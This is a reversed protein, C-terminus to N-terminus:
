RGRRGRAGRGGGHGGGGAGAREVFPPLETSGGAADFRLLDVAVDVSGRTHHAMTAPLPFRLEAVVAVGARAGAAVKSLHARTTSKHLSFVAGGPRVLALAARVFAVDAGARRTGFPPNCLVTDFRGVGAHRPPSPPPRRPPPPPAGAGGGGSEDVDGM